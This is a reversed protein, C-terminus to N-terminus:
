DMEITPSVSILKFLDVEEHAELIKTLQPTKLESVVSAREYELRVSLTIPYDWPNKTKFLVSNEKIERTICVKDSCDLIPSEKLNGKKMVGACGCMAFFLPLYRLGLNRM